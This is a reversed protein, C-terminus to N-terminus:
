KHTKAAEPVRAAAKPKAKPKKRAAAKNTKAKPKVRAAAKPKATPKKKPMAKPKPRSKTKPDIHMPEDVEILSSSPPTWRWKEEVQAADWNLGILAGSWGELKFRHPGWKVEVFSKQSTQEQAAEAEAALQAALGPSHRSPLGGGNPM